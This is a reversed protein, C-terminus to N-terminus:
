FPKVAGVFGILFLLVYISLVWKRTRNQIALVPADTEPSSGQAILRQLAPGIPRYSFDIMISMVFILSYLFTKAALWDQAFPRNSALSTVAIGAYFLALMIQLWFDVKKAIAAESTGQRFFAIWYAAFLVGGIVWGLVLLWTPVLWWGGFRAMMLSVPVMLAICTRPGMDVMMLVKLLTLREQLSYVHTRRSQQGLIFVGLDGGLWFVFLMIHAFTLLQYTM